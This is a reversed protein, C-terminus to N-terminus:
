EARELDSVLREWKAFAHRRTFHADLMKRANDGLRTVEGPNDALRLLVEVLGPGDGPLVVAGCDYKTVLRATEGDAATVSIVPRGAAAIGYFKSPVIVGELEPRLSLWHIDAVGLSFRLASRPQYGQFRFLHALGRSQVERELQTFNAGGGIFLFLIRTQDRLRHAADLITEFEHARGLNGSYGVVLHGELGWERRLPNDAHAVPTVDEDDAWNPIQCIRQPSVGRSEILEAMRDGIVVNASAVKLSGDRLRQLQRAVNGRIFPVQLHMAVEPYLDQLWTVLQVGRKIAAQAVVSLLPPDTKAVLIDGARAESRIAAGVSPYFSLYDVARSPISSRGFRTSAVRRIRIGEVTELPPLNANPDDYRQRSTIVTVQRGTKAFHFAVDGLIQSTSSIDPFFYRNVFIIRKM